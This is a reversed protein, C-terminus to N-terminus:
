LKEFDTSNAFQTFYKIHRSVLDSGDVPRNDQKSESSIPKETERQLKTCDYILHDVTQNRGDCPCEPSEIIKFRHLCQRVWPTTNPPNLSGGGGGFNRLKSFAPGFEWNPPIYM